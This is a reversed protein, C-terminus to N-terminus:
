APLRASGPPSCPPVRPDAFCVATMLVAHASTAPHATTVNAML